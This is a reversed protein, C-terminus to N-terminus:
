DEDISEPLASISALGHSFLEFQFTYQREIEFAISSATADGVIAPVPVAYTKAESDTQGVEKYTIEIYFKTFTGTGSGETLETTKKLDSAENTQPIVYLAVINHYEGDGAIEVGTELNAVLDGNTDASTDWYVRYGPDALTATTTPYVFTTADKPLSALNLTGSGKINKLAIGLVTFGLSGESKAKFLVRSLAHRFNLNVGSVGEAFFTGTHHAVLLDEQNSLPRSANVSHGPLAYNITPSPGTQGALANTVGHAEAPSFAYFNVQTTETEPWLGLPSYSWHTDKGTVELGDILTKGMEDAALLRFDKIDTTTESRLQKREWVNFSIPKGGSGAAEQGEDLDNSCSSVLLGTALMSLFFVTRKM